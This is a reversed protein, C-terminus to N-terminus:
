LNTRCVSNKLKLKFKLECSRDWSTIVIVAVQFNVENSSINMNHSLLSEFSIKSANGVTPLRRQFHPNRGFYQACQSIYLVTIM